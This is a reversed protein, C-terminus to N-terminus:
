VTTTRTRDDGARGPPRPRRRDASTYRSCIASARSPPWDRAAIRGRHQQAQKGTASVDVVAAHDHVRLRAYRACAPRGRLLRVEARHGRVEAGVALDAVPVRASITCSNPQGRGAPPRHRESRVQQRDVPADEARDVEPGRPAQHSGRRAPSTGRREVRALGEDLDTLVHGTEASTTVGVIQRMVTRSSAAAPRTLTNVTM